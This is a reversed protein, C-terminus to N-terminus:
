AGLQILTKLHRLSKEKNVTKHVVSDILKPDKSNITAVDQCLQQWFKHKQTVDRPTLHIYEESFRSFIAGYGVTQNKKGRNIKTELSDDGILYWGCRGETANWLEKLVKFAEYKLDGADDMVILPKELLNLYYKLQGKIQVLSGRTELGVAKALAHIFETKTSHQSCDVYFADRLGRLVHKSCFTKGIGWQDVLIMGKSYEKCFMLNAEIENYVLTRAPKWNDQGTQVNYQLGIKLWTSPNLLGDTEGAKLRSYVSASMGLSKAYQKDSGSFSDRNDLIAQRVKKKYEPPFNM